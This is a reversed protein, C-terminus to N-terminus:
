FYVIPQSAAYYCRAGASSAPIMHCLRIGSFPGCVLRHPLHNENGDASWQGWLLRAGAIGVRRWHTRRQRTGFTYRNVFVLRVVFCYLRRWAYVMPLSFFAFPRDNLCLCGASVTTYRTSLMAAPLMAPEVYALIVTWDADGAACLLAALVKAMDASPRWCLLLCASPIIVVFLMWILWKNPSITWLCWCHLATGLGCLPKPRCFGLLYDSLHRADLHKSHIWSVRVPPSFVFCLKPIFINHYAGSHTVKINNNKKRWLFLIVRGRQVTKVWRIHSIAERHLVNAMCGFSCILLSVAGGIKLIREILACESEWWCFMDDSHLQLVCRTEERSKNLSCCSSYESVSHRKSM